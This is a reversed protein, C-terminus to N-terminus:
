YIKEKDLYSKLVQPVLIGDNIQYNEIIAAFTRGVALGSGNLTHLYKVKQDKKDRYRLMARRAQFDLFNSCSSIERYKNQSPFWVELDYTKSSSFGLDQSCLKVVRYPLELLQLIKEANQLLTELENESEEPKVLKVLEVKNFQHNRIIGKMDKGYSGAEKRFCPTYATLKLPLREEDIIEGQYLNTLQVEATPSLWFGSDELKFLDEKFKPLQGTGILAPTNVLAPPLIETYGHEKTHIDLMFNILARELKAGWNKYIALRPGCVKGAREFDILGFKEALEDHTLPKYDFKPLSGWKKIEQNADSNEGFPVDDQLINPLFLSIDKLEQELVQINENKEKILVSLQKLEAMQEPTPKGKPTLKNQKHRLEEIEQLAIRWNQDLIKVQELLELSFNRKKYSQEVVEYKNRILEPDLM